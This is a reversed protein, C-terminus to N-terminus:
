KRLMGFAYIASLIVAAAALPVIWWPFEEPPVEPESHCADGWWHCGHAICDVETYYQECPVVSVPIIIDKTDDVVNGAIAGLQRTEFLYEFM